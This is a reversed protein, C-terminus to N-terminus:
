GARLAATHRDITRVLGEAGDRQLVAAFESRRAALESITGSLYVDIVKWGGAPDQRELYNLAVKEGDSKVLWSKVITGNPSAAPSPDIDFREGSYGDFRSAYNSITYRSFADTLEKQQGPALQAWGPGVAIRTMLPLDFTEAITPALRAYRQDFSLTKGAKMAALLADYLRGILAAPASQPGAAAASQPGALAALPLGLLLRRPLMM